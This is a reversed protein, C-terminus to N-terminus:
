KGFAVCIHTLKKATFARVKSFHGIDTKGNRLAEGDSSLGACLIILIASFDVIFNHSFDVFIDNLHFSDGTFFETVM